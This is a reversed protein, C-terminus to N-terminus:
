TSFRPANACALTVNEGRKIVNVPGAFAHWGLSGVSEERIGQMIYFTIKKEEPVPSNM